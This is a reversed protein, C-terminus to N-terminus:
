MKVWSSGTWLYMLFGQTSNTNCIYYAKRKLSPSTSSLLIHGTNITGIADRAILLKNTDAWSESIPSNLSNGFPDSTPANETPKQIKISRNLTITNMLRDQTRDNDTDLYVQVTDTKFTAIAQCDHKMAMPRIGSLEKMIKWSTTELENSAVMKNFNITATAALILLIGCTIVIEIITFGSQNRYAM